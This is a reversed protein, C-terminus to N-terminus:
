LLSTNLTIPQTFMQHLPCKQAIDLLRERQAVDLDGHLQIRLTFTAHQAPADRELHVQVEAGTLPWGKRDAYMRLTIATCSALSSALFEGPTFGADTGGAAAPEDSILQHHPSQLHTIYGSPGISATISAM